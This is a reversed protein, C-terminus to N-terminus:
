KVVGKLSVTFAEEIGWGDNLRKRLTADKIGLIKSWEALTHSEGNYEVSINSRKNNAQIETTAWRCNDPSYGKDNDKRDISLTDNYGNAMAWDYFAQFDRKWEDCVTIGRGGYDPYAKTNKRHCRAVMSNWIGYLRTHRHGHTTNAKAARERQLCGCSQTHGTRLNHSSVICENGCDCKCCWLASKWADSGQREQVCLRGFRQGTLDILRTM